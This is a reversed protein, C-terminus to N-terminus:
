YDVVIKSRYRWAQDGNIEELFFTRGIAGNGPIEVSQFEHSGASADVESILNNGEDFLRIVDDAWAAGEVLVSRLTVPEDFDLRYRYVQLVGGLATGRFHVTEGFFPGLADDTTSVFGEFDTGAPYTPSADVVSPTVPSPGESTSPPPNTVVVSGTTQAGASAMRVVQMTPVAWVTAGAVAGARKLFQRRDEGDAPQRGM